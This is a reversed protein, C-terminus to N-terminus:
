ESSACTGCHHPGPPRGSGTWGAHDAQEWLLDWAFMGTASTRRTRGCGDCVLVTGTWGDDTTLMGTM